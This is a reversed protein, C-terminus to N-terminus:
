KAKAQKDADKKFQKALITCAEQVARNAKEKNSGVTQTAIGRWVVRNSKRDAIDVVLTGVEYGEPAANGSGGPRSFSPTQWRTRLVPKAYFAFLFDPETSARQMGIASFQFELNKRILSETGPDTALGDPSNRKQKAFGFSKLQSPPFKSDFSTQVDVALTRSTHLLLSILLTALISNCIRNIRTPLKALKPPHSIGGQDTLCSEYLFQKALFRKRSKVWPQAKRSFLINFSTPRKWNDM